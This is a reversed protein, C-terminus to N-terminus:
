FLEEFPKFAFGFNGTAFPKLTKWIQGNAAFAFQDFSEQTRVLGGPTIFNFSRRFTRADNRVGPNQASASACLGSTACFTYIDLVSTPKVDARRSMAPLPLKCTTDLRFIINDYVSPLWWQSSTLMLDAEETALAMPGGHVREELKVELNAKLVALATGRAPWFCTFAGTQNKVARSLLFCLQCGLLPGKQHRGKRYVFTVINFGSWKVGKMGMLIHGLAADEM